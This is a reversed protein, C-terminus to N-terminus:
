VLGVSRYMNSVCEISEKITRSWHALGISAKNELLWIGNQFSEQHMDLPLLPPQNPQNDATTRRFDYFHVVSRRRKDSM